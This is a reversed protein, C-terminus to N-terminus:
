PEPIAVTSDLKKGVATKHRVKLLVPQSAPNGQGLTTAHIWRDQEAVWDAATLFIQRENEGARILVGSLGINDVIVGHPLNFVDLKIEQEFGLRELLLRATITEGPAITLELPSAATATIEAADQESLGQESTESQEPARTPQPARPSASAATQDALFHLRLKEPPLVDLKNFGAIMRTFPQGHLNATATFVIQQIQEPSLETVQEAITLVAEVQDHGAEIVLPTPVTVGAPLGTVDIRIAGEFGDMREAQLTFRRGSGRPVKLERQTLQLQADPVAARILLEYRFDPGQFGRVDSVRVLYDGDEPPIFLVRSDKGLQQTEEDDNEFYVPFVPLGNEVFQAHAPYPEVLYIPDELAHALGTSGFYGRRAGKREYFRFDADPGRPLQFVRIVEGDLYLYDNLKVEEWNHMRLGNIRSDIPRFTIYSDRVARLKLWPVKEGALTQVQLHTDIPSKIRAGRTELVLTQGVRAPFRYLDIDAGHESHLVGQVEAPITLQQAQDPRDNPEAEMFQTAAARPETEAVAADAASEVTGTENRTIATTPPTPLLKFPEDIQLGSRDIQAPHIQWGGDLRAILLRPPAAAVALASVWDQERSVSRLQTFTATEWAKCLQDEATTFLLEGAPDFALALLPADHAFRTYLLPPNGSEARQTVDWVRIRKDQGGAVLWQGEPHFAVATQSQTPESLTALRQQRSVDWLKVTKDEAASALWRGRPHFDLANVSGHHGSLEGLLRGDHADWLLISRDYSGTAIVEGQPQVALSIMADTHGRSTWQLQGEPWAYCRLEGTVAPEGGACYLRKGDPSFRVQMVAGRCDDAQFVIQQQHADWLEVKGQRGCAFHTGAPNWTVTYIPERAAATLAVRPTELELSIAMGAPIAAGQDIWQALLKREAATPAAEGEPPMVPEATGNLLHVLHSDASNGAVLLPLESPLLRSFDEARDLRVGGEPDSGSHCGLCYKTLVPRVQRAFDIEDSEAGLLVGTTLLCGALWVFMGWTKGLRNGMVGAGGFVGSNGGSKREGRM